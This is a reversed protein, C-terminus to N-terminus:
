NNWVDLELLEMQWLIQEATIPYPKGLRIQEYVADFLKSYNGKLGDRFSVVKDGVEDVVTLLGEQGAEEVGYDADSPLVGEQLQLEQVDSRSKQFSGKVGNVVYGPLPQAALLSGTVYVMFGNPYSLIFSFYDDVESGPRHSGCVKIAKLPKGFLSIVQDLMHPGLDYALGSAEQKIEKFLKASKALRYRDFRVHFEILDGLIGSQMVQKVAKFDSDWRRNQFVMCKQGSKEAMEFLEKAEKSNNACPKEILVDKGALLAQKAYTYHTQNPTNVIVLEIDPDNILEEVTDYSIIHPYRENAIKRSREVVARFIFHKNIELFPAHFVRGSMGYSLIGAVVPKISM